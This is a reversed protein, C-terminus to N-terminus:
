NTNEKFKVKSTSSGFSTDGLGDCNDPSKVLEEKLEQLEKSSLSALTAGSKPSKPSKPSKGMMVTSPSKPSKGGRSGGKPKAHGLHVLFLDKLVLIGYGYKRQHM